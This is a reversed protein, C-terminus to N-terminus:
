RGMRVGMGCDVLWTVVEADAVAKETGGMAKRADDDLTDDLTDDLPIRSGTRVVDRPPASNASDEPLLGSAVIAETLARSIRSERPLGV